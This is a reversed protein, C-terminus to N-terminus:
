NASPDTLKEQLLKYIASHIMLLTLTRPKFANPIASFSGLVGQRKVVPKRLNCRTKDLLMGAREKRVRIFSNARHLRQNHM